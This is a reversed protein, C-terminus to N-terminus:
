WWFGATWLLVPSTCHEAGKSDPIHWAHGMFGMLPLKLPGTTKVQNILLFYRKMLRHFRVM